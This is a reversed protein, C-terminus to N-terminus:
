GVESGQSGIDSILAALLGDTTYERAVLDVRMGAAAATAATVPGICAIRSHGLLGPLDSGAFVAQFNTVTSSSTFTVYHVRGEELLERVLGRYRWGGPVVRYVPAVDLRVGSALLGEPLLDRAEAARPLLARSGSAVLRRLGDLLAEARYEQPMFDVQLGYRALAAATAPGMAALKGRLSRVDLHREQMGSMFFSVGNASTFIVWAYRGLDDLAQDLPARDEYPRLELVPLSLPEGGLQMIRRAFQHSQKLARTILIRKGFLPLRERWSLEKQLAVVKGVILVAPPGIGAEKARVQLDGLTTTATRQEARTGWHILAAPTDPSWGKGLLEGTIAELNEYGMLFIVTGGPSGGTVLEADESGHRRHGTSITLFSAYRRHTVPIGAYAPVAIAASIGPVVEYDIGAAKLHVAEEGGRGFVFPDGGKLRCVTKGKLAQEALVQNIQEQTMAHHDTEKGVYILDADERCLTLLYEGVLRDYVVVDAQELCWLGKLTLLSPDGPGAGVLYVKGKKANL